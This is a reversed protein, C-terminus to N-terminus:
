DKRGISKPKSKNNKKGLIDPHIMLSNSIESKFFMKMLETLDMDKCHMKIMNERVERRIKM